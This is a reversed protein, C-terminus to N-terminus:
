RKTTRRHSKTRFFFVFFEKTKDNRQKSNTSSGIRRADELALKYDRERMRQEDELEVYHRQIHALEKRLVERSAEAEVFKQKQGFVERRMEEERHEDIRVREALEELEKSKKKTESDLLKVHRRLEQLERRAELRSREVDRLNNRLESVDKQYQAKQEEIVSRFSLFVNKSEVRRFVSTKIEGLIKQKAEDLIQRLDIKENEVSKLKTRLDDNSRLALEKDRQEDQFLRKLDLIEKRQISLNEEDERIRRNGDILDRKLQDRNDETLKLQTKLEFNEHNLSQRQQKLQEIDDQLGKIERDNALAADEFKIQFKKLEDQLSNIVQRDQEQHLAADRRLKDFEVQLRLLDDKTLSLKESLVARESQAISM